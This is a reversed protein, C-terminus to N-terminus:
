QQVRVCGIQITCGSCDPMPSRCIDDGSTDGTCTVGIVADSEHVYSPMILPNDVSTDTDTYRVDFNDSLVATNRASVTLARCSTGTTWDSQTETMTVCAVAGVTTATRSFTVTVHVNPGHSNFELDGRTSTLPWVTVNPM